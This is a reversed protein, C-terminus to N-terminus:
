ARFYSILGQIFSSFAGSRWSAACCHSVSQMHQAALDTRMDLKHWLGRVARIHDEGGVGAQDMAAISQEGVEAMRLPLCLLRM